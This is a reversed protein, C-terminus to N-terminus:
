DTAGSGETRNQLLRLSNIADAQFPDLIVSRRVQSMGTAYEGAQLSALGLLYHAEAYDPAREIAKQLNVRAQSAEGQQLRLKGLQVWPNPFDRALAAAAQLERNATELDGRELALAGARYHGITAAIAPSSEELYAALFAAARRCADAQLCLAAARLSREAGDPLQRLARGLVREQPTAGPPDQWCMEAASEWDDPNRRIAHFFLLYALDEAGIRQLRVADQLWRLAEGTRPDTCDAHPREWDRRDSRQILFKRADESDAPWLHELYWDQLDEKKPAAGTWGKRFAVPGHGVRGVLVEDNDGPVPIKLRTTEHFFGNQTTVFIPDLPAHHLLEAADRFEPVGDVFGNVVYCPIAQSVYGLCPYALFFAFPIGTVIPEDRCNKELYQVIRQNERHDRLYEHSRELFSGERALREGPPGLFHAVASTPEPFLWGNWNLLNIGTIAVLSLGVIPRMWWSRALISVSVLYLLPVTCAVYRPVFRVKELAILVALAIAGALLVMRESSLIDYCRERWHDGPKYRFARFLHVGAVLGTGLAILVMDPCWVLMMWIPPGAAIQAHISAGWRLLAVELLLLLAALILGFRLCRRAGNADRPATWVALLLWGALALTAFLGTPKVLFALFSLLVAGVVNGRSHLYVSSVLAALLPMEMGVMDIQVCFVPTTAVTLATLSAVVKGAVPALMECLLSLVVAACFFTFMHYILLPVVSDPWIRLLLALLTPVISTMYSRPGGHRDLSHSEEYKLRFYDFDTSALFQAEPWIGIVFDYYPPSNIVEWRVVALLLTLVAIRVMRSQWGMRSAVSTHVALSPTTAPQLDSTSPKWVM